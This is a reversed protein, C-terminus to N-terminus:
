WVRFADDARERDSSGALSAFLCVPVESVPLRLGLDRGSTPFLPQSLGAGRLAPVRQQLVQADGKSSPSVGILNTIAAYPWGSWIGWAIIALHAAVTLWFILRFRFKLTKHRFFRQALHAGPWGGLLSLLHLTRESIRPGKNTARRKDVGYLVFAM